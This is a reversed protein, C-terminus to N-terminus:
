LAMLDSASLNLSGSVKGVAPITNKKNRTLEVSIRMNNLLDRLEYTSKKNDRPELDIYFLLLPEKNPRHKVNIINRIM